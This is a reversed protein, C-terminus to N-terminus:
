IIPLLFLLRVVIVFISLFVLSFTAELLFEKKKKKGKDFYLLVNVPLFIYMLVASINRTHSFPGSFVLSKLVILM